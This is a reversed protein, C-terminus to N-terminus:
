TQHVPPHEVGFPKKHEPGLFTCMIQEQWAGSLFNWTEGQMGM